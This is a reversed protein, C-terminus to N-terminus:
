GWILLKRAVFARRFDILLFSVSFPFLFLFHHLPLLLNRSGIQHLVFAETNTHLLSSYFSLSPLYTRIIKAFRARAGGHRKTFPERPKPVVRKIALLSFALRKSEGTQRAAARMRFISQASSLLRPCVIVSWKLIVRTTVIIKKDNQMSDQCTEINTRLKEGNSPTCIFPSFYIFSIGVSPSNPSTSTHAKNKRCM